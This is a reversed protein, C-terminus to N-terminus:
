PSILVRAHIVRDSNGVVQHHHLHRCKVAASIGNYAVTSCCSVRDATCTTVQCLGQILQVNNLTLWLWRVIKKLHFLAPLTSFVHCAKCFMVQCHDPM